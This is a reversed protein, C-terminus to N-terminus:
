WVDIVGHKYKKQFTMLRDSIDKPVDGGEISRCIYSIRWNPFSLKAFMITTIFKHVLKYIPSTKSLKKIEKM